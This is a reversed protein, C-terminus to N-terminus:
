PTWAPRSASLLMTLTDGAPAPLWRRGCARHWAGCTPSPHVLRSLGTRSDPRDVAYLELRVAGLLRNEPPHLSKLGGAVSDTLDGRGQVGIAELRTPSTRATGTRPPPGAHRGFAQQLTVTESRWSMLSAVPILKRLVVDSDQYYVGGDGGV